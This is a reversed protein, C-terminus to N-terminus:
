CFNLWTSIHMHLADRYTLSDGTLHKWGSRRAVWKVREIKWNIMYFLLFGISKGTSKLVWSKSMSQRSRCANIEFVSKGTDDWYLLSFSPSFIPIITSFLSIFPSSIFKSHTIIVNLWTNETNLTQQPGRDINIGQMERRAIIDVEPQLLHYVGWVLSQIKCYHSSFHVIQGWKNVETSTRIVTKSYIEYCLHEVNCSNCRPLLWRRSIVGVCRSCRGEIDTRSRLSLLISLSGSSITWSWLRSLSSTM